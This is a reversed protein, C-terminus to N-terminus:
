HPFVFDLKVLISTHGEKMIYVKHMKTCLKKLNYSLERTQKPIDKFHVVIHQIEIQANIRECIRETSHIFEIWISPKQNWHCDMHRVRGLFPKPAFLVKHPVLDSWMILSMVDLPSDCTELDSWM